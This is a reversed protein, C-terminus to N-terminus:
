AMSPSPSEDRHYHVGGNMRASVGNEFDEVGEARGLLEGFVREVVTCAKGGNDSNWPIRKMPKETGRSPRGEPELRQEEAALATAVILTINSLGREVRSRTLALRSNSDLTKPCWASLM